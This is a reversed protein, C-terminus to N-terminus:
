GTYIWDDSSASPAGPNIPPTGGSPYGSFGGGKAYSAGASLLGSAASAYLNTMVGSAAASGGRRQMRAQIRGSEATWAQDANWQARVEDVYRRSSGTMQLNSAGVAATAQGVQQAAQLRMRRLNERTEMETFEAQMEALREADDAAGGSMMGSLGGLVGGVVAGWAGGVMAGQAAGSAAGTLGGKTQNSM